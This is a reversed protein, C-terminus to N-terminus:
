WKTIRPEGKWDEEAVYIVCSDVDIRNSDLKEHVIEPTITKDFRETITGGDWKIILMNEKEFINNIVMVVYNKQSPMFIM